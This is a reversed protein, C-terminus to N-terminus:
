TIILTTIFHSLHIQSLINIGFSFWPYSFTYELCGIKPANIKLWLCM